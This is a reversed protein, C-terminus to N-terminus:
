CVVVPLTASHVSASKESSAALIGTSTQWHSAQSSYKFAQGEYNAVIPASLGHGRELGQEAECGPTLGRGILLNTPCLVERLWGGLTLLGITTQQFLRILM